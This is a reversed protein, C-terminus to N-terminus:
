AAVGRPMFILTQNFCYVMPAIIIICAHVIIIIDRHVLLKLVLSFCAFPDVFALYSIRKNLFM